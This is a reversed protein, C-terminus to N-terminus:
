PQPLPAELDDDSLDAYNALSLTNYAMVDGDDCSILLIEETGFERVILHNADHPHAGDLGGGVLCGAKTIPYPLIFHSDKRLRQFIGEPRYCLIEAGCAM